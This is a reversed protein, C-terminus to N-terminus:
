DYDFPGLEFPWIRKVNYNHFYEHALFNLTSIMSMKDDMGSGDFSVTANNLHEIGGRGPGIGIFTYQRYPVEGFIDVGVQVARKLRGMFEKRDFNGPNYAIFRHKVGYIEFPSFEELNGALLPCDYLIDFDPASFENVKGPVPDLGTAIKNWKEYPIVTVSVPIKIHDKIYLFTGATVIYAHASDLWNNAVFHRDAKVDYSLKFPMRNNVKIKWTHDDPTTVPLKEGTHDKASFGKIKKGYDMIQYYGPMWEPMKFEISDGNWGNCSLDVHLLQSPFDSVSITYRLEPERNQGFSASILAPSFFLIFLLFRSLIRRNNLLPRTKGM